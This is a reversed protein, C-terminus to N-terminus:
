ACMSPNLSWSEPHLLSYWNLKGSKDARRAKANTAKGVFTIRCQASMVGM